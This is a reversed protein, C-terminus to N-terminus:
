VLSVFTFMFLHSQVLSFLKPVAFSVILLIFLEVSNRSIYALQLSLHHLLLIHM